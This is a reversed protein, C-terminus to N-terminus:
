EGMYAHWLRWLKLALNQEHHLDKLQTWLSCHDPHHWNDRQCREGRPLSMLLLLACLVHVHRLSAAPSRLVDCYLCHFLEEYEGLSSRAGWGSFLPPSLPSFFFFWRKVTRSSKVEVSHLILERSDGNGPWLPYSAVLCHHVRSQCEPKGKEFLLFRDASM